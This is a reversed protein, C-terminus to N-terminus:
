LFTAAGGGHVPYEYRRAYAAPRDSAGTLLSEPAPRAPREARHPRSAGAPARGGRGGHLQCSEEGATGALSLDQAISLHAGRPPDSECERALSRGGARGREAM